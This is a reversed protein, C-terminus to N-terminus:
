LAHDGCQHTFVAQSAKQRGHSKELTLNQGSQLLGESSAIFQSPKGHTYSELLCTRM